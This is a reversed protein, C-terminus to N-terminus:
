GLYKEWPINGSSIVRVDSGTDCIVTVTDGDDASRYVSLLAIEMGSGDFSRRDFFVMDKIGSYCLGRGRDAVAFLEGTQEVFGKEKLSSLIGAVTETDFVKEPLPYRGVNVTKLLATSIREVKEASAIDTISFRDKEAFASLLVTWEEYSLTSSFNAVKDHKIVPELNDRIFEAFVPKKVDTILTYHGNEKIVAIGYGRFFSVTYLSSSGAGACVTEDPTFLVHAFVRGKDTLVVASDKEEAFGISILQSYIGGDRGPLIHDNKNRLGSLNLMGAMDDPSLVFKKNGSLTYAGPASARRGSIRYVSATYLCLAPARGKIPLVGPILSDEEPASVKEVKPIPSGIPTFSATRSKPKGPVVPMERGYVYRYSYIGVGCILLTCILLFLVPFVSMPKEIGMVSLTGNRIESERLLAIEKDACVCDSCPKKCSSCFLMQTGVSSLGSYSEAGCWCPCKCMYLNKGCNICDYKYHNEGDATYYPRGCICSSTETQSAPPENEPEEEVPEEEVPDEGVEPDSPQEEEIAPEEGPLEADEAAIFVTFVSAWLCFVLCICVAASLIRKLATSVTRFSM